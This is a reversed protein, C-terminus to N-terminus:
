SGQWAAGTWIVPCFTSGGGTVTALFTCAVADTVYAMAGTTPSAPLTSVTYGSLVATGGKITLGTTQTQAGTGSGVAIPSQLILSSPTGTGTGTGSQITYNAGGINTDTGSRSGQVKLTQAVPSAANADGQQLTAAAPRWLFTDLTGLASSSNSWSLEAASTMALSSATLYYTPNSSVLIELGAILRASVTGDTLYTNNSPGQFTATGNASVVKGTNDVSFESTTGSAGGYLNLFKTAAGRATDTIRLAIVDPSGTTNLTGSYDILSQANSGTLSFGTSTVVSANAPPVVTLKTVNTGDSTMNTIGGFASSNNYQVQTNSGGPTGGGGSSSSGGPLVLQAQTPSVALLLVVFFGILLRM